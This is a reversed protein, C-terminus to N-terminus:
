YKIYTDEIKKLAVIYSFSDRLFSIIIRQQKIYNKLYLEMKIKLKRYIEEEEYYHNMNNQLWEYYSVIVGGGNQM